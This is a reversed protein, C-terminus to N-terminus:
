LKVLIEVFNLPKWNIINSQAKQKIKFIRCFISNNVYNTINYCASFM